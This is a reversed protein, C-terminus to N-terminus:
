KKTIKELLLTDGDINETVLGVGKCYIEYDITHHCNKSNDEKNKYCNTVNNDM